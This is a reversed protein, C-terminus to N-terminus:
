DEGDNDEEGRLALVDDPLYGINKSDRRREDNVEGNHKGCCHKQAPSEPEPIPDAARLAKRRCAVIKLKSDRYNHRNITSPATLCKGTRHTWQNLHRYQHTQYIGHLPKRLFPAPFVSIEPRDSRCYKVNSIRLYFEELLSDNLLQRYKQEHM